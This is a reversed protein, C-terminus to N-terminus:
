NIVNLGWLSELGSKIVVRMKYIFFCFSEFICSKFQPTPIKLEPRSVESSSVKMMMPLNSNFESYSNHMFYPREEAMNNGQAKSM